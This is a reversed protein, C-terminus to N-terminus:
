ENKHILMSYIHVCKNDLEAKGGVSWATHDLASHKDRM